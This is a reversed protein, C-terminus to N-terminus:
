SVNSRHRRGIIFVVPTLRSFNVLKFNQCESGDSSAFCEAEHGGTSVLSVVGNSTDNAPM